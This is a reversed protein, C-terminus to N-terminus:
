LSSPGMNTTRLEDKGVFVVMSDDLTGEGIRFEVKYGGGFMKRTYISPELLLNPAPIM